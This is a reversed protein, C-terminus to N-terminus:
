SILEAMQVPTTTTVVWKKANTEQALESGPTQQSKDCQFSYEPMKNPIPSADAEAPKM